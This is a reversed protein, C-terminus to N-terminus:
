SSSLSDSHSPGPSSQWILSFRGTHKHSEGFPFDTLSWTRVIEHITADEVHRVLVCIGEHEFIERHQASTFLHVDDFLLRLHKPEKDVQIPPVRFREAVILEQLSELHHARDDRSLTDHRACGEPGLLIATHLAANVDM